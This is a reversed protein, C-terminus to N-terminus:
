LEEPPRGTLACGIAAAATTNGIGMEGPVIMTAGAAAAARAHQIGVELACEAQAGSMAPGTRMDRTGPGLSARHLAPDDPLDGAVGVDVIRLACDLAGALVNVAAGGSLFNRVMQATVAPPYASVGYAAVGHDAAFVIVEGRGLRPREVQQIGAVRIALEELRGLAGTPKTLRGQRRQAARM